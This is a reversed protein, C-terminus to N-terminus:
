HDILSIVFKHPTINIKKDLLNINIKRFILIM